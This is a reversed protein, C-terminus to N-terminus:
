FNKEEKRLTNAKWEAKDLSAKNKLRESYYSKLPIIVKIFPNKNIFASL